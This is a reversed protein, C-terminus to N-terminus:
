RREKFIPKKHKGDMREPLLGKTLDYSPIRFYLITTKSHDAIITAPFLCRSTEKQCKSFPYFEPLSLTYDAREAQLM